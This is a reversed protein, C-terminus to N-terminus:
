LSARMGRMSGTPLIGFNKEDLGEIQFISCIFAGRSSERVLRIEVAPSYVVDHYDVRDM